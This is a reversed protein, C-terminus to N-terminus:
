WQLKEVNADNTTTADDVAAYSQVSVLVFSVVLAITTIKFHSSM